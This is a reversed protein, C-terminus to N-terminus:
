LHQGFIQLELEAIYEPSRQTILATLRQFARRRAENTPQNIWDKAADIKAELEDDRYRCTRLEPRKAKM